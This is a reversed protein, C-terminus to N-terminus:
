YLNELVWNRYIIFVHIVCASSQNSVCYKTACPFIIGRGIQGGWVGVKMDKLYIQMKGHRHLHNRHNWRHLGPRLHLPRHRNELGPLPHLSGRGPLGGRGFLLQPLGSAQCGPLRIPAGLVRLCQDVADQLFNTHLPQRFHLSGPHSGGALDCPFALRSLRGRGPLRSFYVFKKFWQLISKAELEKM